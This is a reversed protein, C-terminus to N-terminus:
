MCNIEDDDNEKNAYLNLRCDVASERVAQEFQKIIKNKTESLKKIYQDVTINEEPHMAIYVYVKVDREEEPLNIHSCFRSARGVVQELRSKNWYPELVHVYRVAKLSVGEKISPSGLIIKLKEGYLNDLRNYVERIEDKMQITEDGSWVAFRKRGPGHESYNKYGFAELVQVVTKLGAHEKFGSYLFVKGRSRRINTMIRDLKCSYKALGSRIKTPTFSELGQDSIKRNPYVVNSVFRTGIYFNNPLDTANIVEEKSPVHSLSELGEKKIVKRYISYQFDSMECEIYKITMAPFTYSPAGMYYSVYGKIMKKFLEMNQVTYYTGSKLSREKIFLREFERGTPIPRPLRLLNMTLAIEVPKDFMPTASLLVIRLDKNSGHILDYLEKYYTGTESVMNQIEDIFLIANNLKMTGEKAYEIFKNYSYIDYYKEIRKNSEKIIDAYEDDGPQLTSLRKREAPKLYDNGGCLGRLENMFNGKLSAPLVFVIRKIKKWREAIQIASCTKGAGIRHYILISKYPTKPNIYEPLFQQPKQLTFERPKCYNEVSLKHQPIKYKKYLSNIKDYFEDDTVSPYRSM